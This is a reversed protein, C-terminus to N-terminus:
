HTPQWRRPALRNKDDANEYGEAQNRRRDEASYALRALECDPNRGARSPLPDGFYRATVTGTASRFAQAQSPLFSSM